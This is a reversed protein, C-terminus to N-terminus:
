DCSDSSLDRLVASSKGPPDIDWRRGREEDDFVRAWALELPPPLKWCMNENNLWTRILHRQSANDDKFNERCHLVAMNNIFRIDGPEMKTKFQHKCAIFHVADLAEAQAETLGPIGETRPSDPHGTLLRRSFNLFVKGDFFHLLARKYYPPQRGFTDFPWDPKALVHILDPRTAALENYVTWSSALISKGGEASVSKTLLGLTDCITDTHFPQQKGIDREKREPDTVHILMSGSQNQKGRREAIYSSIGLYIVVLDASSNAYKEPDLGRIIGLGRGEYVQNCLELLRPGLTPLPFNDKSVQDGSQKTEKFKSLAEDIERRHSEELPLIFQTEGYLMIGCWVLPGSLFQPFGDPVTKELGGARVREQARAQYEEENPEYGIKAYTQPAEEEPPTPANDLDYKARLEKSYYQERPEYPLPFVIDNAM